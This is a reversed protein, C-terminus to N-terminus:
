NSDSLYGGPTYSTHIIKLHHTFKVFCNTTSISDSYLETSWMKTSRKKNNRWTWGVYGNDTKDTIRVFPDPSFNFRSHLHICLAVTPKPEAM